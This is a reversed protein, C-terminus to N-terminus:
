KDSFEPKLNLRLDHGVMRCDQLQFKIRDAMNVLGPLNFMGKSSEGLVLPAMYVVLEDVLGAQLLAGNLRSGAEVHVENIENKALQQLVTFLDIEKKVQECRKIHVTNNFSKSKDVTKCFVWTDGPQRLLQADPSIRLKSDLVVRLPQRQAEPSAEIERITLRPDDQLVTGIGTLIADSRARLEQVDDRAATGTIWHSEGSAMATRGDLSVALKIRVWPLGSTMRKIFGPNLKEAQQELLGTQVEIGASQLRKIGQGAVKPNPDLMAVIVKKVGADILADACPPTKGHHSCPELSVYATSASANGGAQRLAYVEAHPGGAYQHYGTGVIEGNNVIVCGVRPNPHPSLVPIDALQIALAMFRFDDAHWM